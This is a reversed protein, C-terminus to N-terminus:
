EFIQGLDESSPMRCIEKKGFWSYRNKAIWDYLFDRLPRPIIKFILFVQWFGGVINIIELAADSKQYLSGQSLFIISDLKKIEQQPLLKKATKGQLSAYKLKKNRDIKILFDVSSNCLICVGDFFVINELLLDILIPNTKQM